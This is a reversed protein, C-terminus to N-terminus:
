LAIKTEIKGQYEGCRDNKGVQPYASITALGVGMATQQPFAHVSPPYRRCKFVLEKNTLDAVCHICTECTNNSSM